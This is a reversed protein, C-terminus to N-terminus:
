LLGLVALTVTAATRNEVGLKQVANNIHFDITRRTIQLLSAINESTKGESLHRLIDIERSTLDIKQIATLEPLMHPEMITQASQALWGLQLKKQELEPTTLPLRTRAVSFLGKAGYTGRTPISVGYPVGSDKRAQWVDPAAAYSEDSWIMWSTSYYAHRVVPDRAAFGSEFYKKRWQEPFNSAQRLIPCSIPIPAAMGLSCYEFGLHAAERVLEAFAAQGASNLELKQMKNKQWAEM